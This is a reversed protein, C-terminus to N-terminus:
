RAAAHLSAAGAFSAASRRRAAISAAWVRRYEAMTLDVDFNAVLHTRARAVAVAAREPEAFAACIARAADEWCGEAVVSGHEPGPILEEIGVTTGVVCTCRAAIAEKIVNPLRDYPACSLFLFVEARQMEAFVERQPVYGRFAVNRLGLSEARAELQARQPGDGCIVLEADPFRTQVRAFTEIVADMRKPGELAGVSVIRRAQKAAAPAGLLDPHVGRYVVRIKDEPVGLAVLEGCSARAHTFVCDAVRALAASGPYETLLDYSGLFMTVPIGLRTKILWGPLAPYHGWFVHVADPREAEARAYLELARPLLLLSKVVHVPSRAPLGAIFRLAALTVLPRTLAAWLGRLLTARSATTSPVHGVGYERRLREATPWAGRLAHVSVSVGARVLALVDNAAFTERPAPFWMTLYWLRM